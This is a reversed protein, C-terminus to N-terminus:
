YGIKKLFKEIRNNVLDPLDMTTCHSGYDFIELESGSILQHMLEQEARPTMHDMTGGLLLTPVDITHLWSTSDCREYSELLHFFVSPEIDSIEQIYIDIDESPTLHPNFGVLSILLKSLPSSKQNKMLYGVLRPLKEHLKKFLKFGTQFTNQHLLNELPRKATGNSLIISQVLDPRQKLLELVINVGMSHGLLVADKIKLEDLLCALDTAINTVTVTNSAEKPLVSNRHGRYDYWITQYSNRFHEIQYTWHLSSCVLGYCFVLPRGKGETSYFLRTDDFGKFYGHRVNPRESPYPIGKASIKRAGKPRLKLNPDMQEWM